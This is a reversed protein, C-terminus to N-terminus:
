LKDVKYGLGRLGGREINATLGFILDGGGNEKEFRVGGTIGVLSVKEDIVYLLIGFNYSIFGM